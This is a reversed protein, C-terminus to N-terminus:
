STFTAVLIIVKYDLYNPVLWYDCFTDGLNTFEPTFSLPFFLNPLVHFIKWLLMSIKILNVTSFVLWGPLCFFLVVKWFLEIIYM